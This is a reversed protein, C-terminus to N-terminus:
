LLKAVRKYAAMGLLVLGCCIAAAVRRRRTEPQIMTRRLGKLVGAETLRPGGKAWGEAFECERSRRKYGREHSRLGPIYSKREAIAVNATAPLGPAIAFRAEAVALLRIAVALLVNAVAFVVIAVAFRGIAVAFVM